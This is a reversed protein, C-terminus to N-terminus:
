GSFRVGHFSPFIARAVQELLADGKEAVGYMEAEHSYGTVPGIYARWSGECQTVAVALVRHHLAVYFHQPKWEVEESHNIPFAQKWKPPLSSLEYGSIM